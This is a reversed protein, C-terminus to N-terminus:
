GFVVIPVDDFRPRSSARMMNIWGNHGENGFVLVQSSSIDMGEAVPRALRAGLAAAAKDTASAIAAQRTAADPVLHVAANPWLNRDLFWDLTRDSHPTGDHVFTVSRLEAPHSAVGILPYVGRQVLYDLTDARGGAAGHDFWGDRAVVVASASGIRSRFIKAPDGEEMAISYSVGAAGAKDEFEQVVGALARRAQEIRGSRLRSAYYNAGLPVPGVSMLMKTDVIALVTLPRDGVSALELALAMAAEGGRGSTLAVVVGGSRPEGRRARARAAPVEFKGRPLEGALEDQYTGGWLPVGAVYGARALLHGAVPTTLLLFTIALAVKLSMGVSPEAFAVGILVLGAGTVGAKTAAHMRLFFDPLRLVGLAAILCITGGALLFLASLVNTM